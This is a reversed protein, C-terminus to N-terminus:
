QEVVSEVVATRDEVAKQRSGAEVVGICRHQTGPVLGDVAHELHRRRAAVDDLAGAQQVVEVVGADRGHGRWQLAYRVSEYM